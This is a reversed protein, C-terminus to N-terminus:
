RRGKERRLQDALLWNKENPAQIWIDRWANRSTNAAVRSAFEAPSCIEGQYNINQFRVDAFYDEGKYSMRLKTGNKLFLNQWQYGKTPDGYSEKEVGLLYAGHVARRDFYEESWIGPDDETRDLFDIVINEIWSAVDRSEGTRLIFENYIDKDIPVCVFDAM